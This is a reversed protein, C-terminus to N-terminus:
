TSWAVPSFARRSSSARRSPSIRASLPGAVGSSPVRPGGHGPAATRSALASTAKSRLSRHTYLYTSSEASFPRRSRTGAPAMPWTQRSPVRWARRARSTLEPTRSARGSSKSSFLRSPCHAAEAASSIQDVGAHRDQSSAMGAWRRREIVKSWPLSHPQQSVM